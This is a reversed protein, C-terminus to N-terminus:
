TTKKLCFVAYSIRMLSQLESTHEESRDLLAADAIEFPDDFLRGADADRGIEAAAVPLALLGSHGTNACASMGPMAVSRRSKTPLRRRTLPDSAARLLRPRAFASRGGFRSTPQLSADLPWGTM